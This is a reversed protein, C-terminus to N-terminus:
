CLYIRAYNYSVSILYIYQQILIASILQIKKARIFYIKIVKIYCKKDPNTIFRSLQTCINLYIRVAAEFLYSKSAISFNAGKIFLLSKNIASFYNQTCVIDVAFLLVLNLETQINIFQKRKFEAQWVEGHRLQSCVMLNLKKDVHNMSVVLCVNSKM